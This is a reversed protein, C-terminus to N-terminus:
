HPGSLVLAQQGQPVTRFQGEGGQAMTGTGHAQSSVVEFYYQTNPQLNKIDVRHTTSGWPAQATQSLSNPDTGYKIVSSAPVTTSWAIVAHNDAVSEIVPGNIIRVNSAQQQQPTTFQAQAAPSGDPKFVTYYYTKGPQLGSLQATHDASGGQSSATQDLSSPSLGYKVQGPTTQDAHWWLQASTPTLNQIVPGALLNYSGPSAAQGPSAQAACFVSLVGLALPLLATMIQRRM